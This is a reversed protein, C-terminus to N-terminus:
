SVGTLVSYKMVWQVTGNGTAFNLSNVTMYIGQNIVDASRTAQFPGYNSVGGSDGSICGSSSFVYNTSATAGTILGSTAIVNLATRTFNQASGYVITVNGGGTYNVTGNLFNFIFHDILIVTGAGQAALLLVPTALAKFETSTLSGSTIIGSKVFSLAGSANSVLSSGSITADATPNTFTVGNSIFSSLIPATLTKNSLAQSATLTVVTDTAAPFTMNTAGSTTLTLSNAGVTALTSSNALTLTASAAPATIAVKNVSTATAVGLTPTTLSPSTALVISGSGTTTNGLATVTGSTPLTLATLGSTTFTLSNAGVTALTSGDALTLTASTAPATIAVKNVSTASAVGLTPTTLSPSTALVISGTGTTTNGLATVTGSTPLTLATLGTTTLTLNNAGVTALTSGDALTLTASTAPATIAVKNVSTASAVGLIPTTLSPSTALVISGTGTTTNGLATVTGSTPLTLATLGTTTLTLSNAGVTALTSGDALTLTAGTAPATIGVKNITTASAAGLVPTTLTPSTALVIQGSGTTSNGLATVTGSTPLTLGTPGTTTLTLTNAGVTALTSNDALTLTAGTAPETLAVKNVTTATAAGLVPTVLTPSTALVISGTGTTTNGLVTITGSTPLTLATNGTTTLTLTHAGVTSLTSNDALTLTATTAPPTLVLKNITSVLADLIVISDATLMKGTAIEVNLGVPNLVLDGAATTITPVKISSSFTYPGNLTQTGDTLVFKTTATGPVPLDVRYSAPQAGTNITVPNPAGLILQNTASTATVTTASIPGGATASPFSGVYRWYTIRFPPTLGLERPSKDVFEVTHTIGDAVWVSPNYPVDVNDSDVLTPKYANDRFAGPVIDKLDNLTGPQYQYENGVVQNLLLGSFGQVSGSIAGGGPAPTPPTVPISDMDVWVETLHIPSREKVTKVDSYSHTKTSQLYDIFIANEKAM